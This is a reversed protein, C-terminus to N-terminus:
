PLTPVDEGDVFLIDFPIYTPEQRRFLLDNFTPRGADDLCVIEGDFVFGQPLKELLSEFRKMRNTNKSLIRGNVTDCLARFGDYKLEFCYAPDDFADQRRIPIIPALNM